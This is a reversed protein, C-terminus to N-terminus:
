RAAVLRSTHALKKVESWVSGIDEAARKAQAKDQYEPGTRGAIMAGVFAQRYGITAQLVKGKDSLFPAATKSLKWSPDFHTLLFVFPKSYEEAIEIAPDIAELDIPSPKVPIIVLDAVAISLELKDMMAPPSDIFIWQWGRQQLIPVDTTPDDCAGGNNTILKPNDPSGRVEWWRALSQQPDVDLLAVKDSEQAARVALNAVATTKGSGGKSSAVVITRTKM